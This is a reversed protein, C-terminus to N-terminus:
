EGRAKTIVAQANNMADYYEDHWRWQPGSAPVRCEQLVTELAELLEPGVEAWHNLKKQEENFFEVWEDLESSEDDSMTRELVSHPGTRRLGVADAAM